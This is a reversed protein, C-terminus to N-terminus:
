VPTAYLQQTPTLVTLTGLAVKAAVYDLCDQFDAVSMYDGGAGINASHFLIERGKGAAILTDLKTCFEVLTWEDASAHNVAFRNTRPLDYMFAADFDGYAEYAHYNARLALDPAEGFTLSTLQYAPGWSGPQVFSAIDLDLARMEHGSAIAEDMFEALSAPDAGHTRSHAMIEMGNTQMTKIQALTMYNANGIENRIVAFGGVLGRSTLEPYTLSYDDDTGDDFRLSVVAGGAPYTATTWASAPLNTYATDEHVYFSNFTSVGNCYLGVFKNGNIAADDITQDAGYQAGGYFVQYTTGNQRIEILEEAQYTCTVSLKNTEVQAVVQDLRITGERLYAVVYSQPDTPNDLKIVVGARDALNHTITAGCRTTLRSYPRTLFLGSYTFPKLSWDDVYYTATTTDYQACYITETGTSVAKDTRLIEQFSGSAATINRSILPLRNNQRYAKVTGPGENRVYGHFIYWNGATVSRVTPKVYVAATTGGIVKQAKAGAHVITGEESPTLDVGTKSWNPALGDTYEGECGPNDFIETSTPLTNGLQAAVISWSPGIWGRGIAGAAADVSFSDFLTYRSRGPLMLRRDFRKFAPM